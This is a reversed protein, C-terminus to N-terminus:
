ILKEPYDKIYQERYDLKKTNNLSQLRKPKSSENLRVVFNNYKLADKTKFAKAKKVTFSINTYSSICLYETEGVELVNYEGIRGTSSM